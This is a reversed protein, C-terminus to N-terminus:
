EEPADSLASPYCWFEEAKRNPNAKRGEDTLVFKQEIITDAMPRGLRKCYDEVSMEEGIDIVELAQVTESYRFKFVVPKGTSKEIATLGIRILDDSDVERWCSVRANTLKALPVFRTEGVQKYAPADNTSCSGPMNSMVKRKHQEIVPEIESIMAQAIRHQEDTTINRCDAFLKRHSVEQQYYKYKWVIELNGTSYQFVIMQNTNNVLAFLRKDYQHVNAQGDFAYNNLDQVLYHFKNPASIKSLECKDQLLGGAFSVIMKIIVFAVIALLITWFM